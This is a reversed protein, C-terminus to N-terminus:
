AESGALVCSSSSSCLPRNRSGFAHGKMARNPPLYINRLQHCLRSIRRGKATSQASHTHTHTQPKIHGTHAHVINSMTRQWLCTVSSARTTFPTKDVLNKRNFVSRFRYIKLCEKSLTWRCVFHQPNFSCWWRNGSESLSSNNRQTSGDRLLSAFGSLQGKDTTAFFLQSCVGNMRNLDLSQFHIRQNSSRWWTAMM